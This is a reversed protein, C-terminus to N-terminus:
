GALGIVIDCRGNIYAIVLASIRILRLSSNRSINSAIATMRDAHAHALLTLRIRGPSDRSSSFCPRDWLTRNYRVPKSWSTLRICLENGAFGPTPAELSYTRIDRWSRRSPTSAPCDSALGPRVGGRGATSQGRRGDGKQLVLLLPMLIALSVLSFTPGWISPAQWQSFSPGRLSRPM